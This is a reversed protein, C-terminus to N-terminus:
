EEIAEDLSQRLEAIIEEVPQPRLKGAHFAAIAEHADQTIERRRNEIHRRHIIDLLMEQQELSLQMVTDLAQDLTVVSM